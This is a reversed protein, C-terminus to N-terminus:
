MECRSMVCVNGFVVGFVVWAVGGNAPFSASGYQIRVRGSALRPDSFVLYFDKLMEGMLLSEMSDTAQPRERATVTVDGVASSALGISTTTNIATFM